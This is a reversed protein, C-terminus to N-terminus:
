SKVTYEGTAIYGGIPLPVGPAGITIVGPVPTGPILPGVFAPVFVAPMMHITSSTVDGLRAVPQKGPGLLVTKGKLHAYEGGDIELGEKTSIFGSKAGQVSFTDSLDFKVAKKVQLSLTGECRLLTNGKRDFVLRLVSSKPTGSSAIDGTETVFGKPAVAFEFIIPNDSGQGVGAAAQSSGGDPEPMPNFVRGHAIKIDSYKDDAFIRYTQLHQAPLQTQSAGEQIGWSIAGGTNFHEYAGSIDTVLNGLPIYIRQALETAGVSLVGGRHLIVFQGDRGRLWQDGPKPLPRGGAFSADTANKAPSGHSRTGLSAEDSAAQSLEHPMLFCLVFPPASDGPICIMCQAGIEPMVSFGEGNSYHLYPSGVQVDCYNKRDFTARVDVTWNQLNVNYVRCQLILASDAGEKHMHTNRFRKM